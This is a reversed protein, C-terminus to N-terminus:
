LPRNNLIQLKAWLMEAESSPVKGPKIILMTEITTNLQCLKGAYRKRVIYPGKITAFELM